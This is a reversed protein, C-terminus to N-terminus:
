IKLSICPQCVSILMCGTIEAQSKLFADGFSFQVEERRSRSVGVQFSDITAVQVSRSGKVSARQAAKAATSSGGTYHMYVCLACEARNMMASRWKNKSIPDTLCLVFISVFTTWQWHSLVCAGSVRM